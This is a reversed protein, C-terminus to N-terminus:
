KLTALTSWCIRSRSFRCRTWCDRRCRRSAARRARSSTPPASAASRTSASGSRLRVARSARRCPRGATGREGDHVDDARVRVPDRREPERHQRADGAQRVERRDEVPGPGIKRAGGLSHCAACGADIDFVKKGDEAKGAYNLDLAFATPIRRASPMPLIKAARTRIAVYAPDTPMTPDARMTVPSQAQGRRGPAPPPAANNALNRAVSVLEPPVQGKEALDLMANLGPVSQGMVRLAEVRVENPANSLAIGQAWSVVVSSPDVAAPAPPQGQAPPPGQRGLVGVARIASVRVAPVGAAALAQFDSLYQADRATAVSEIALSRADANASEQKAFAILQPLYQRDGLADAVTVAASQTGPLSFGKKMVDPLAASTRADMWLSFLQHSYNNFAREVLPTPVNPRRSSRKSRAPRKRGNCRGSRTSRWRATRRRSRRTTSRAAVLDPLATRPRLEWLIGAQAPTIRASGQSKMRAYIADERGRAAIGLAELYWRDRATTSRSSRRDDGRAVRRATGGAEPYLYAPLMTTPDQLMLAIERRVQPSADRVLPRATALMDAGHLRAVRLALIRFRPDQDKMAEQIARQGDAGLGGLMWLARARVIPDGQRWMAQLLPAAAQGKAKIAQYALYQRTPNASSLAATLGADSTSISRRCPRGTALRRSCSIDRGRNGEMDGM